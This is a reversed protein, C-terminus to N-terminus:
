PVATSISATGSLEADLSEAFTAADIASWAVSAPNAFVDHPNLLPRSAPISAQVLVSTDTLKLACGCVKAGTAPNVIDNPAVHAFCDATHGGDKVFRTKEGLEAAVGAAQLARVLIDVIARYAPTVSRSQSPDLGLSVLPAALGVTVDHGHLVAKGGTPRRVHAVHTPNLLAREPQQSRGLSVWPGDWGYVRALCKGQESEILLSEDRSMNTLGDLRGELSVHRM